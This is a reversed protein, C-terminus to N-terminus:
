SVDVTVKDDYFAVPSRIPEGERIVEDAYTWAVDRVVGAEIRLSYHAAAGKYRCQTVTESLELVQM